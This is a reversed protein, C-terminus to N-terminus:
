TREQVANREHDAPQPAEPQSIREDRKLWAQQRVATSVRREWLQQLGRALSGRHLILAKLFRIRLSRLGGM